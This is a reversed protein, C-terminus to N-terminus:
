PQKPIAPDLADTRMWGMYTEWAQLPLRGASNNPWVSNTHEPYYNGVIFTHHTDGDTLMVHTGRNSREITRGTIPGTPKIGLAIARATNAVELNSSNFFM